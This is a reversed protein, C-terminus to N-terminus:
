IYVWILKDGEDCSPLRWHSLQRGKLIKYNTFEAQGRLAGRSREAEDRDRANARHFLDFFFRSIHLCLAYKGESKKAENM